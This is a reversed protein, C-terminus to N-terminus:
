SEWCRPGLNMRRGCKFEHCRWAYSEAADVTPFRDPLTGWNNFAVTDMLRFGAGTHYIAFGGASKLVGGIPTDAGTM